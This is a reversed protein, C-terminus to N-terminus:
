RIGSQGGGASQGCRQAVAEPGSRGAIPEGTGTQVSSSREGSPSAPSKHPHPSSALQHFLRELQERRDDWSETKAIETRRDRLTPDCESVAKELEKVFGKSNDALYVLGDYKEVEPLRSSVVPFGYLFYEYLKLPNVAVTLENRLFPIMAVDFSELYGALRNYPVYGPLTVNPYRGLRRVAESGVFGVLVFSWEPHTRCALDVAEADFWSELAGVYGVRIRTTDGPRIENVRIDKGLHNKSVANRVTRFLPRLGPHQNLARQLLPESSFVVADSVHFCDSESELLEGAINGFGALWDHSDYVILGDFREKLTLAVDKWTPFSLLIVVRRTRARSLVTSIRANIEAIERKSLRRQHFVPERWLHCHLEWVNDFVQRVMTRPSQPYVQSFERGLHPNLYFCRYGQSAFAMALHQSRQICTHWDAMPLFVIDPRESSGEGAIEAFQELTLGPQDWCEKFAYPCHSSRLHFYMWKLYYPRIAEKLAKWM